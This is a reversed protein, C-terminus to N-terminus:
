IKLLRKLEKLEKNFSNESEKTDHNIYNVLQICTSGMQGIIDKEEQTAGVMSSKMYGNIEDLKDLSPKVKGKDCQDFYRVYNKCRDYVDQSVNKPKQHMVFYIGSCLGILLVILIVITIIKNKNMTYVGMLKIYM